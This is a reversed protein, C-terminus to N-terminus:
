RIHMGATCVAVSAVDERAAKGASCTCEHTDVLRSQGIVHTSSDQLDSLILLWRLRHQLLLLSTLLLLLLAAAAAAPHIGPARAYSLGVGDTSGQEQAGSGTSILLVQDM